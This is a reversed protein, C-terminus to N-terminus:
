LPFYVYEDGEKFKQDLTKDIMVPGQMTAPFIPKVSQANYQDLLLSLEAVKDPRELAVNNQETPDVGLNYLWTQKGDTLRTNFQLKWDQHRV